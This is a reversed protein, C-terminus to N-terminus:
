KVLRYFFEKVLRSIVKVKVLLYFFLSLMLVSEM